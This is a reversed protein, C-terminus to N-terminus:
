GINVIMVFSFQRLAQDGDLMCMMVQCYGGHMGVQVVVLANLSDHQFAGHFLYAFERVFDDGLTADAVASEIEDVYFEARRMGMPARRMSM